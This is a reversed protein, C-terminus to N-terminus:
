SEKIPRNPAIAECYAIVGKKTMRITSDKGMRQSTVFGKKVLSSVIGPISTSPLYSNDQLTFTWVDDTISQGYESKDIARMIEFEYDTLDSM